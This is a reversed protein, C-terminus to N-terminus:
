KSPSGLRRLIEADIEVTIDDAIAALLEEEVDIGYRYIKERHKKEIDLKELLERDEETGTDWTWRDFVEAYWEIIRETSIPRFEERTSHYGQIIPWPVYSLKNNM